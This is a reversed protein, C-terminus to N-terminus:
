AGIYQMTIHANGSSLPAGTSQYLFMSVKDNANLAVIGAANAYWPASVTSGGTVVYMQTDTAGNIGLVLQKMGQTSNTYVCGNLTVLYKGTFPTTIRGGSLAMGGTQFLTITMLKEIFAASTLDNTGANASWHGYTQGSDMSWATWTGSVSQRSWMRLGVGTIVYARQAFYAGSSISYHTLFGSATTVDPFNTPQSSGLWDYWGTVTLSNLNNSSTLRTPGFITPPALPDYANWIGNEHVYIVGADFSAGVVCMKFPQAAYAADRVTTTPFLRLGMAAEVSQAMTSFVNEIPTIPDAPGPYWIGSATTAM